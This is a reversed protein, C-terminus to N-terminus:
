AKERVVLELGVADLLKFLTDVTYNQEGKKIKTIAHDDVGLEDMMDIHTKGSLKRHAEFITGIEKKNMTM